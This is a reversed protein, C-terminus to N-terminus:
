QLCEEYMMRLVFDKYIATSFGSRRAKSIVTGYSSYSYIESFTPKKEKVEIKYKKGM